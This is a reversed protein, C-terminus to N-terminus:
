KEEGDGLYKEVDETSLRVIEIGTIGLHRLLSTIERIQKDSPYVPPQPAGAFFNNPSFPYRSNYGSYHSKLENVTVSNIRIAANDVTWKSMLNRWSAVDKKYNVLDKERQTKLEKLRKRLKAAYATARIKTEM